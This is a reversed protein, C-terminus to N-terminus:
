INIKFDLFTFVLLISIDLLKPHTTLHAVRSSVLRLNSDHQTTFMKSNKPGNNPNDNDGVIRM